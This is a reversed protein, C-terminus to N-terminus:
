KHSRFRGLMPVRCGEVRVCLLLFSRIRRALHIWKRVERCSSTGEVRCKQVFWDWDDRGVRVSTVVTRESRLAKTTTDSVAVINVPPDAAYDLRIQWDSSIDALLRADERSILVYPTGNKSFRIRILGSRTRPQSSGM